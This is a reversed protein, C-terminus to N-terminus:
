LDVVDKVFGNKLLWKTLRRPSIRKRKGTLVYYVAQSCYWQKTHKGVFYGLWGLPLFYDLAIGLYFYKQGAIFDARARMKTHDHLPDYVPGDLGNSYTDWREPHRLIHSADAFRTGVFGDGRTASSFCMGDSFEIESHSHPPTGRNWPWTWGSIANDLWKGDKSAKYQHVKIMDM